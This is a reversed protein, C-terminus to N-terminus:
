IKNVGFLRRYGGFWKHKDLVMALFLAWVPAGFFLMRAVEVSLIAHIILAIILGICPWDIFGLVNKRERKSGFFGALIMFTFTGMVTFMEGIGHISFVRMLSYGFNDTHDFANMMSSSYASGTQQDILFRAGFVITGSLIFYILQKWKPICGWFFIIPAIFVFSEKAFPGIFIAIILARPDKAKIGYMTIALILLYLSDTMPVGITYNTWSSALVAVMGIFSSIASAGYQRCFYFIFVAAIATLICNILFFSLRLPWEDASRQPWIKAYVKSIPWAVAAAMFPVIVRYRRTVSQDKFDGKAIAMYTKSDIAYGYDYHLYTNYGSGLIISFAIFFLLFHTTFPSHYSTPYTDKMRIPNEQM